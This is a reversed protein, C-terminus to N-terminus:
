SGKPEENMEKIQRTSLYKRRKTPIRGVEVVKRSVNEVLGTVIAEDHRIRTDVVKGASNSPKLQLNFNLCNLKLWLICTEVLSDEDHNDSEEGKSGHQTGM